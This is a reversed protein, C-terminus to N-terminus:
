RRLPYAAPILSAAWQRAVLFLKERTSLGIRDQFVDFDAAEIRDLIGSYIGTLVAPCARSQLPLLPILRRGSDFYGRARDVQFRMLSRFSEDVM